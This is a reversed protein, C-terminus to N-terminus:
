MLTQCASLQRSRVHISCFEKLVLFELVRRTRSRGFARHCRLQAFVTNVLRALALYFM